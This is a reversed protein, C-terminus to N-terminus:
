RRSPLAPIPWDLDILPAGNSVMVWFPTLRKNPPTQENRQAEQKHQLLDAAVVLACLGRLALHGISLDHLWSPIV